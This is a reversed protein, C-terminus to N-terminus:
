AAPGHVAVLLVTVNDPGGGDLAAQVLARCADEPAPREDIIAPIAAEDVAETLGDSCLLLRDGSQLALPPPADVTVDSDLGVARSLMHREPRTAAQEPTLLGAEVAHQAATHDTTLQQLTGGRVLYARSDGVHALVVQGETLAAATVTTAMGAREPTGAAAHVARNAERVAEVLAGQLAQTGEHATPDLAALHETAIGSAVEGAAHGGLGDAVVFVAVGCHYADENGDRVLGVHTDAHATVQMTETM